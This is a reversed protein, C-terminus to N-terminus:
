SEKKKNPLFCSVINAIALLAFLGLFAMFLTVATRAKEVDNTFFAVPQTIDALPFCAIYLHSGIACGILACSLIGIFPFGFVADVISIVGGAILFIMTLYSFDNFHIDSGMVARDLLFFVVGAIIAALGVVLRIYFSLSKNKM